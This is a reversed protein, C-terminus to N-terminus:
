SDNEKSLNLNKQEIWLSMYKSSQLHHHSFIQGLFNINRHSLINDLLQNIKMIFDKEFLNKDYRSNILKIGNVQSREWINRHTYLEISKEIFNTEDETIYGNWNLDGSMAEAGSKTTVNPLGYYMSEFLKGKLGAGYPIPALLVKAESFVNEINSARGKILFGEKKQHLQKAKETVYAGYIHLEAKPLSKRISIWMKKLLLVTQWNPEHLFNGISIFHTRESYSPYKNIKELSISNTLFPLYHLIQNEVKFKSILLDMEFESIILSLDCRHISAFERKFVDNLFDSHKVERNQKYASERAKRLFHLDETDLIRLAGPCNKQVRWGYQEEIMFRDFLVIQPNIIKIKEDFSPHNLQISDTEIKIDELPFSNETKSAACWFHISFDLKKFLDILQLMRSGAATSTPEPWVSGIIIIKKRM